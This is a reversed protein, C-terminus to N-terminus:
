RACGSWADGHRRQRLGRGRARPGHGLGRAGGGDRVQRLQRGLVGLLQGPLAVVLEGAVEPEGRLRPEDLRSHDLRRVVGHPLRDELGLEVGPAPGGGGALGLADDVALRARLGAVEDRPGLEHPARREDLRAAGRLGAEARGQRDHAAAHLERAEDGVVLAGRLFNPGLDRREDAEDVLGAVVDVARLHVAHGEVVVDLVVGHDAASARGPM